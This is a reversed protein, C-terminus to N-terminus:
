HVLVDDPRAIRIVRAASWDPTIWEERPRVESVRINLPVMWVYRYEPNRHEADPRYGHFILWHRGAIQLISGVGPAGVLHRCYNPWGPIQTQLIYSIEKGPADNGWLNAPDPILVKEYTKSEPPILSDSYAVAIKYNDLMYDGVTYVMVYKGGFKAFSAGEVLQIGGPNRDESRYGEPELLARPPSSTDVTAPDLMRQAWICIRSTGPRFASYVLYLTGDTDKIIKSEYAFRGAEVDGVLVGTLRWKTIPNGETWTQGAQPVLHGVATRHYGFHLTAYAHYSGDTHKYVYFGWVQPPPTTLLDLELGVKGLGEPSLSKGQLMFGATGFIYWTDGHTYVFPDPLPDNAVLQIPQDQGSAMGIVGTGVAFSGPLLELSPEAVMALLAGSGDDLTMHPSSGDVRGWVRALLGSTEPATSFASRGSMGLPAAPLLGDALGSFFVLAPEGAPTRATMARLNVLRTFDPLPTPLGLLAVGATRCPDQVYARDAFTRTVTAEAIEVALGPQMTRAQSITMPQFAGVDGIGDGNSDLQDPNPILPANDYIDPIGDGDQDFDEPSDIRFYTVNDYDARTDEVVLGVRGEPIDFTRIQLLVGNVYFEQVTGIKVVRLTNFSAPDTGAPLAANRWGQVQGNVVGYTALVQYQQDIFVMSYNQADRYCSYLGYKPFSSSTGREVESISASFDYNPASGPRFVAKWHTGPAVGLEDQRLVRWETQGLSGAPRLEHIKWDGPATAPADTPLWRVSPGEFTEVGGITTRFGDFEADASDTFVAARMPGDFGSATGVRRGNLYFTYWGGVKEIRLLSYRTFDYSLPGSATPLEMWEGDVGDVVKVVSSPTHGVRGVAFLVMSGPGAYCGIGVRAQSSQGPSLKVWGEVVLDGSPVGSIAICPLSGTDSQRMSGDETVRWNGSIFTWGPPAKGVRDGPDFWDAFTASVPDRVDVGDTSDTPGAIIAMEGVDEESAFNPRIWFLRDIALDREWSISNYRKRHYVYWNELGNPGLLLGGHGPGWVGPDGPCPSDEPEPGPGRKKLIPNHAPKFWLGDAWEALRSVPAKVYAITYDPRDAGEGSYFVYCIGNREVAHPGENVTGEWSRDPKSVTIRDVGQTATTPSSMKWIWIESYWWSGWNPLGSGLMYIDGSSSTFLSPDIAPTLSMSNSGTLLTFPGRPNASVAARLSPVAGMDSIYLCVMGNVVAAEPAWITHQQPHTFVIGEYTWNVLDRSTYLAIQAGASQYLYYEGRFEVPAPDQFGCGVPNKYAAAPMSVVCASVLAVIGTTVAGALRYIVGM